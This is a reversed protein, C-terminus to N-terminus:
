EVGSIIDGELTKTVFKALRGNWAIKFPLKVMNKKDDGFILVIEQEGPNQLLLKKLKGLEKPKATKPIKVYIVNKDDDIEESTEIAEVILTPSDERSDIKGSVVLAKNDVWFNRTQKFIQPFVVLEISGTDDEVRVFAMEQGSRRTIVIRVQSVIVALKVLEGITENPSIEFIKHTAKHELPGIVESLPRASLSFGLLQRELAQLEEDAFEAVEEIAKVNHSKSSKSIEDQSFLGQQGKSAKPKVVRNRIEDFSSLLTARNGFASLAGVKILSELVRKNVRRADVRALFDAFSVFESEDRAELIAEIAAKGVNKIANLGFRIGQAEKDNTITFGVKSENIDPPLVKIGVRRCEHVAASIKETDNSEATLLACMFEVPYNAKMYATQYAVMGYSTAHSKNFGYGSFPEILKFLEEAKKKEMGNKIAGEIFRIKQKEMEKPIKKGVAKRFKDAEEWSYGAIEIATMLVDDQYVLLGYSKDLFEKMRPDFYTIKQPNNKRQIYEPIHAMPGPRYLAVMAMLDEIKTPKLDKLYRTIGSGSLQFVGMTDGRSLTEFTKKDNLPIKQLDIEKGRTGKIIEIASGLISLNRLGLLDFKLLGVADHSVNPDLANMDYQTIIRKGEPDLQIPTYDTIEGPAIVLGAAHVSIHRANGELQKALDIVKKSNEDNDYLERLEKSITLATDINMPFGQSGLPILKAIRDGTSYPFGLVRAVDRVSAKAMMRGFTCIQAVKDHGYKDSIYNIVEERRNDAIDFDIDPPSPRWPTLFREFPLNYKLPNVSIIGMAYSVLSGAASGRTNTVIGNEAAWKAMDAVILFYTEYGKEKIIEMEYNLRKKIEPTIKKIKEKIGKEIQEKMEQAATRGKPLEYNPFFWKNLTIELNCKKAVKVTNELAEPLDSFLEHMEDPTKLYFAPMDIFRLRKIDSVNKGTAICVLADQAEADEKKVYHADNTAIIPIGMERSLKIVGDNIKKESEAISAVERRIEPNDIGPLFDECRHRQIELYYDEGFVELFWNAIKKAEDFDNNILAQAIEGQPCASACILGKSYKALTERDVRPRYYYGELHALSTLKMLNKYGRKDKALLLLHFNKFKGREPRIRHDVNTTYGEIGIIPKVGQARMGKYFEIAGYMVGHDTIAIADMGNEKVYKALKDIKSLGDLLSYETHVHLHVFKKAM